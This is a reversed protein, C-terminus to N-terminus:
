LGRGSGVRPGSPFFARRCGPCYHEQENLPVQLGRRTQVTRERRKVRKGIRDCLPCAPSGSDCRSLQQQFVELSVADGAALALNEIQTFLAEDSEGEPLDGEALVKQVAERIADRLRVQFEETTAM